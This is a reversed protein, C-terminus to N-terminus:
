LIIQDNYLSQHTELYTVASALNLQTYGASDPIKLENSRLSLDYTTTTGQNNDHDAYDVEVFYTGAALLQTYAVDSDDM